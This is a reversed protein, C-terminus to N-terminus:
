KKKPGAVKALRYGLGSAVASTGSPSAVTGRSPQAGSRSPPKFEASASAATKAKKKPQERGSEPSAEFHAAPARKRKKQTELVQEPALDEIAPHGALNTPRQKLQLVAM